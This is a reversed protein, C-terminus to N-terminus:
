ENLNVLFHSFVLDSFSDCCPSYIFSPCTVAMSALPIGRTTFFKGTVYFDRSVHNAIETFVNRIPKLVRDSSKLKM